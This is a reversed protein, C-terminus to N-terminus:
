QCGWLFAVIRQNLKLLWWCAHLFFINNKKQFARFGMFINGPNWIHTSAKRGTQVLRSKFGSSQLDSPTADGFVCTATERWHGGPALASLDESQQLASITQWFFEVYSWSKWECLENIWLAVTKIGNERNSRKDSVPELGRIEMEQWVCM